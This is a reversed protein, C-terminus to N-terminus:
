CRSAPPFLGVGFAIILVQRTGWIVQAFIDQGLATTGFLHAASPGLSRPYITATPSDHAIM